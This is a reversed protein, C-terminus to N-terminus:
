ITSQAYPTHSPGVCQDLVHHSKILHRGILLLIEAENNMPPIAAETDYLHLYHHAVELVPMEGREDPIEDCEILTPLRHRTNGDVSEVVLGITSRGSTKTHGNCSTLTYQMRKGHIDLLDFLRSKAISLDRQHDIIAYFM